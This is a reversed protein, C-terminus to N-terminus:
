FGGGAGSNADCRTSLPSSDNSNNLATPKALTLSPSAHRMSALGTANSLGLAWKTSAPTRNLPPLRRITSALSSPHTIPPKPVQRHSAM